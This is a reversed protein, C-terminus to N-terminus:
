RTSHSLFDQYRIAVQWPKGKFRSGLEGGPSEVMFQSPVFLLRGRKPEMQELPRFRFSAEYEELDQWHPTKVSFNSLVIHLHGNAVYLGGSTTLQHDEGWEATEYFTVIEEPTAQELGKVLHPAFLQIETDSFASRADMPNSGFLGQDVRVNELIRVMDEKTLTVPHGYGKGENAEPMVQLAVVRNPSDFITLSQFQSSACGGLYMSISLIVGGVLVNRM